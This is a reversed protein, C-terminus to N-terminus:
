PKTKRGFKSETGALLREINERHRWFILVAVILAFPVIVRHPNLLFMFVPFIATAVLSGLSIYRWKAVTAAFVLIALGTAPPSLALFVGLATAVGKGGKFKLFISFIHGLFAALAVAGVWFYSDLVAEAILVPIVGKLIDGLLTAVAVKKGAARLVNTAGINGSGVKRPDVGSFVKALIVGTPISGLFFGFLVLLLAM